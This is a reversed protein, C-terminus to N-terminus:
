APSRVRNDRGSYGSIMSGCTLYSTPGGSKIQIDVIVERYWPLGGLDHGLESVGSTVSPPRRQVNSVAGPKSLLSIVIFGHM